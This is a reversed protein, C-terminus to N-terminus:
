ERKGGKLTHDDCSELLHPHRCKEQSNYRCKVTHCGTIINKTIKSKAKLVAQDIISLPWGSKKVMAEIDKVDQGKNLLKVLHKIMKKERKKYQKDPNM